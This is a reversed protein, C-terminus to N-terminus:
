DKVIQKHHMKVKLELAIILHESESTTYLNIRTIKFREKVLIRWRSNSCVKTQLQMRYWRYM